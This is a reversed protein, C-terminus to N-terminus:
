KLQVGSSPTGNHKHTCLTQPMSVTWGPLIAGAVIVVAAADAAVGVGGVGVVVSDFGFV